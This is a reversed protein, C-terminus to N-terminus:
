GISSWAAAPPARLREARCSPPPHVVKGVLRHGPPECTPLYRQGGKFTQSGDPRPPRIPTDMVFILSAWEMPRDPALRKVTRIEAIAEDLKGQVFLTRGLLAHAEADYPKLRIAERLPAIAREIDAAVVKLSQGREELTTRLYGLHQVQKPRLAVLDCFVTIAEDFDGREALACALGHATEPRIARAATWFRIAEDNRVLGHLV